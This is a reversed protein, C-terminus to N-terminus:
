TIFKVKFSYHAILNIICTLLSLFGIIQLSLQSNKVVVLNIVFWHLSYSM